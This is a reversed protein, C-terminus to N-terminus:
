QLVAGLRGRARIRELATAVREALHRNDPVDWVTAIAQAVIEDSGDGRVLWQRVSMMPPRSTEDRITEALSVDPDDPTREARLRSQFANLARFDADTASAPDFDHIRFNPDM